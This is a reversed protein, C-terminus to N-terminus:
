AGKLKKVKKAPKAAGQDGQDAPNDSTPDDVMPDEGAAAQSGLPVMNLPEQLEDGGPKAKMREKRRAENATLISWQRGLAYVRYRGLSDGRQLSDLDFELTITKAETASLLSSTCESEWTAVWDGLSGSIFDLGQQEINSFTARKLDGIMHPPVGFLRAVDVASFERTELFQMEDAPLGVDHYEMGEELIGIRHAGRLGRHLDEHTERINQKAIKSLTMPHKIWGGPRGNNSFFRAGFEEAALGLGLSTMAARIPSLGITGHLELGRLHLVRYHPLPFREGNGNTYTYFLGTQPDGEITVRDPRWPWLETVRGNGPMVIEAFANGWLCLWLQMLRRFRFATMMPNSQVALVPYLYHNRDVEPGDSAERLPRFPVKAITNGLIRVCAYVATLRMATEETVVVGSPNERVDFLRDFPTRPNELSPRGSLDLETSRVESRTTVGAAEALSVLTEIM